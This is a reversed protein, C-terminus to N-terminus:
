DGSRPLLNGPDYVCQEIIVARRPEGMVLVEFANGVRNLEPRIYAFALYHGADYGYGGSSIQGVPEGGHWVSESGLPDCRMAAPAPEDLRLYALVWREVPRLSAEAGQFGGDRAFRTVDAEALTVENTIEHGSRYAKEMRVSNLAASGVHVMGASDPTTTLAQYVERMGAMPVHLEWGLEGTYTVRLARVGSVGAATIHRASLWRFNANDLASDTCHALIRRSAPGALMIVGFKESVNDFEVAEGECVEQRMWNLLAAERLAAYVLYYRNEGLRVLTAEGEIRGNPMILYTLSVSGIKQPVRNSQVRELFAEADSGSIEVKAFASLDAIGAHRRMGRVENGVIDFLPSRRFSHIHAQQVGNVAYWYPREWGYVDEYVAGCQKLTEYLPSLKSHSPRLAPRDLQPYPIEHRLLYDERAKNIRYDDDIRAGFRRPDFSRMSVDAAGRVMWQALYKGAGPGWAIGVQSGCCLWFNKVGSPGLLMNGDPPHTIAGHVVSKIGKDALIPMRELANELWPMIRDYDPEFLENESDWPTGHDWVSAANAKEYIGILGSQQEMRIYGSVQSDDRIVPLERELAEFEPVNETILYHHLMNAIPLDLGVWQGIQRAYTGGANVVIGAEIDGKETHVIFTDGSREIGTARNHRIVSAGMMRAGRAMAFAVGAPDVHGDHPTYLAAKVGDLNYFPHLEAIRGPDVIEMRHGLGKGVSLTYKIWDVEDDTYAIRLSGSGHWTCSQGTEDELRPYLETGYAAMKALSYHSVSHTIQGAAHWTSGSTLEAKELLVVDTEGEKCLHYALSCGMVGGGIIVIKARSQM